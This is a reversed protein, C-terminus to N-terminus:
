WGRGGQKGVTPTKLLLWFRFIFVMGALIAFLWGVGPADQTNAYIFFAVIWFCWLAAVACSLLSLLRSRFIFGAVGFAGAVILITGVVWKEGGIFAVLPAWTRSLFLRDSRWVMWLGAVLCWLTSAVGSLWSTAFLRDTDVAHAGLLPM